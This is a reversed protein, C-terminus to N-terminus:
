GDEEITLAAELLKESVPKPFWTREDEDGAMHVGVFGFSGKRTTHFVGLLRRRRQPKDCALM